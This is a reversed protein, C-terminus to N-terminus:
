KKKFNWKKKKKFIAVFLYIWIILLYTILFLITGWNDQMAM